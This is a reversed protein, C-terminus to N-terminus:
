ELPDAPPNPVQSFAQPETLPNPHGCSSWPIRPSHKLAQPLFQSSKPLFGKLGTPYHRPSYPKHTQPLTPPRLSSASVLREPLAQCRSSSAPSQWRVSPTRRGTRRSWRSGCSWTSAPATRTALSSVLTTTM